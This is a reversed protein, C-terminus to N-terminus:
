NTYQGAHIMEFDQKTGLSWLGGGMQYLAHAIDCFEGKFDNDPDCAYNKSDKAKEKKILDVWGKLTAQGESNLKDSLYRALDKSKIWQLRTAIPTSKWDPQTPAEETSDLLDNTQDIAGKQIQSGNGKKRFIFYAVAGLVVVGGVVLLIKKRDM